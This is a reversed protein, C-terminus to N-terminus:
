RDERYFTYGTEKELVKKQEKFYLPIEISSRIADFVEAKEADALKSIRRTRRQGMGNNIVAILDDGKLLYYDDVPKEKEGYSYPTPSKNIRYVSSADDLEFIRKATEDQASARGVIAAYTDTNISIYDEMYGYGPKRRTMSILEGDRFMVIMPEDRSFDAYVDVNEPIAGLEENIFYRKSNNANEFLLREKEIGLKTRSALMSLYLEDTKYYEPRKYESYKDLFESGLGEIEAVKKAYTLFKEYQVQFSKDNKENSLRIDGIARVTEFFSEFEERTKLTKLMQPLCNEIIAGQVDDIAEGILSLNNTANRTDAIRNWIFTYNEEGFRAIMENKLADKDVLISKEVFEGGLLLDLQQLLSVQPTYAVDGSLNVKYGSAMTSEKKLGQFAKQATLETAGEYYASNKEFDEETIIGKVFTFKHVLEHLMTLDIEGNFVPFKTSIDATKGYHEGKHTASKDYDTLFVRGKEQLVSIEDLRVLNPFAKNLLEIARKYIKDEDSRSYLKRLRDIKASRSQITGEIDYIDISM